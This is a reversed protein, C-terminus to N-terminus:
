IYLGMVTINTYKISINLLKNLTPIKHYNASLKYIEGYFVLNHTNM